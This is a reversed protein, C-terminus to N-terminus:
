HASKLLLSAGLGAFLRAEAEEVFPLLRTSILKSNVRGGAEKKGKAGAVISRVVNPLRAGLTYTMLEGPLSDMVLDDAGLGQTVSVRCAEQGIMSELRLGAKGKRGAKQAHQALLRLEVMKQYMEQLVVNPVLPNEFVPTAEEVAKTATSKAAAKIGRRKHAGDVTVGM